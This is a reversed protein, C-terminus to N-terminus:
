LPGDAIPGHHINVPRGRDEGSNVPKGGKRAYDAMERNIAGILDFWENPTLDIMATPAHTTTSTVDADGRVILTVSGDDNRSANVYGPLIPSLKTYAHILAM